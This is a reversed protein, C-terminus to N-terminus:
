RSTVKAKPNTKTLHVQNIEPIILHILERERDTITVDFFFRHKPLNEVFNYRETQYFNRLVFEAFWRPTLPASVPIRCGKADGMTLHCQPHELEKAADLDFDFRLPFPILRRSIIELYLQDAMYEEPAEQFPRLAPSPYYALCHKVLTNERFLYRLQLLGGDVLKVNYARSLVLEQYLEEYSNNYNLVSSISEAGKFSIEWGGKALQRLFPFNQDDAISKQILAYLVQELEDKVMLVRSPANM